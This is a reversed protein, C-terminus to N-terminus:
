HGHHIRGERQALVAKKYRAMRRMAAQDLVNARPLAVTVQEGVQSVDFGARGEFHAQVYLWYAGDARADYLVLLVPMPERLWYNLDTRAIRCLVTRGDPSVKVHDTAKLQFLLRGNEFEGKRNFTHVILDIGYDMRIREVAFGCRLAYREVHNVSLDAIVHERTRRKRVSGPQERAM